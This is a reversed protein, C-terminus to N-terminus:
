TSNFNNHFVNLNGSFDKGGAYLEPHKKFGFYRDIIGVKIGSGKSIAQAKKVNHISFYTDRSNANKFVITSNYKVGEKNKNGIYIVLFVNFGISIILIIMIFIFAKKM